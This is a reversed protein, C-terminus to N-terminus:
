KVTHFHIVYMVPSLELPLIGTMYAHPGSSSEWCGSLFKPKTTYAQLGLAQLTSVLLDRSSKYVQSVLIYFGTPEVEVSLGQRLFLTFLVLPLCGTDVEQGRYVHMCIYVSTSVCVYFHLVYTNSQAKDYLFYRCTKKRQREKPGFALSNFM